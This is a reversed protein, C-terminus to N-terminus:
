IHTFPAQGRRRPNGGRQGKGPEAKGLARSVAFVDHGCTLTTTAGPITRRSAATAPAVPRFLGNGCRRLRQIPSGPNQSATGFHWINRTLLTICLTKTAGRCTRDDGDHDFNGIQSWSAGANMATLGFPRSVGPPKASGNHPLGPNDPDSTVENGMATGFAYSATITGDNSGVLGGVYDYDGGGGYLRVNTAGVNRIVGDAGLRAFLGISKGTSTM